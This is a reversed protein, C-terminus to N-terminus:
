SITNTAPYIRTLCYPPLAYKDPSRTMLSKAQKHVRENLHSAVSLMEETTKRCTDSVQVTDIPLEVEKHSPQSQGLAPSLAKLLDCDKHFLM